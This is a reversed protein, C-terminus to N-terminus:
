LRRFLHNGLLETVCLPLRQWLARALHFNSPEEVSRMALSDLDPFHYRYLPVSRASWKHKFRALGTRQAAVEGFDYYLFGEKLAYHIAEWQLLDNAHFALAAANCGTFAYHFTERYGLYISGALLIKRNCGVREALLLKLLGRPRMRRWLGSFFRYPRAPVVVRRMTELYLQYWAALDEENEAERVKIGLRVAANVAWFVRHHERANGFRIIERPEKPLELVCSERWFNGNMGDIIGDLHNSNMKIQLTTGPMKAVRGVAERLLLEDVARSSGLPGAIPTRPLSSLRRGTVQGGISLAGWHLGRTYFLPFLGQFEGDSNVCALYLTEQDFEEQLAALWLSHHYIAGRPHCKIFANWRPDTVCNTEIVHPASKDTSDVMRAGFTAKGDHVDWERGCLCSIRGAMLEIRSCEMCDALSIGNADMRQQKFGCFHNCPQVPRHTDGGDKLVVPALVRFERAGCFCELNDLVSYLM